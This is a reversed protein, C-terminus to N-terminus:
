VINAYLFSGAKGAAARYIIVGGEFMQMCNGTGRGDYVPNSVARGFVAASKVWTQPIGWNHQIPDLPFLNGWLSWVDQTMAAAKYAWTEIQPVSLGVTDSRRTPDIDAHRLIPIHSYKARWYNVLWGMSLLQDQTYPDKGDQLNELEFGLTVQNVNIGNQSYTKGEYVWTSFGAHNAGYREPVMDYQTGDKEILRHISVMRGGGSQLYDISNTGVTGHAVIALIQQGQRDAFYQAPHSTNIHPPLSIM